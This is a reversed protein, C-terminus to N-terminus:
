ENFGPIFINQLIGTQYSDVTPQWPRRKARILYTSRGTSVLSFCLEPERNWKMFSFLTVLPPRWFHCGRWWFATFYARVCFFLRTLILLRWWFSFISATERLTPPTFCKNEHMVQSQKLQTTPPLRAHCVYVSPTSFPLQFAEEISHFDKISSQSSSRAKQLLTGNRLNKPYIPTTSTQLTKSSTPVCVGRPKKLWTTRPLTAPLFFLFIKQSNNSNNCDKEWGAPGPSMAATLCNLKWCIQNDRTFNTIERRQWLSFPINQGRYGSTM